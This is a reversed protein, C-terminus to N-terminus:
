AGLPTLIQRVPGAAPSKRVTDFLTTKPEVCYIGIQRAIPTHDRGVWIVKCRARRNGHQMSIIEGKRVCDIGALRAGVSSTNVTRAHQVFPKGHLDLGWVKVDLSVEIRPELARIM